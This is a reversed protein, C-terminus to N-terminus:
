ARNSSEKPSLIIGSEMRSDKKFMKKTFAMLNQVGKSAMTLLNQDETVRNEKKLRSIREEDEGM